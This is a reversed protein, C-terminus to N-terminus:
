GYWANQPGVQSPQVNKLAVKSWQTDFGSAKSTDAMKLNLDPELADREVKATAAADASGAEAAAKAAREKEWHFVITAQMFSRFSIEDGNNFCRRPIIVARNSNTYAYGYDGNSVM